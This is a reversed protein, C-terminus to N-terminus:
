AYVEELKKVAAATIVVYDHNLLDYVNIDNLSLPTFGPVNRASIAMKEDTHESILLATGDVGLGAVFTVLTKTKFDTQGFDEIVILRNEKLLDSLISRFASQRVKRNIKSRYDRPSPGFIVSGGRWQAARTSGQRARGTGKQKFPKKGGGRVFARTKTSHTGQRQNALFQNLVARVCQLNPEVGFVADNLDLNSGDSGNAQKITVSAM